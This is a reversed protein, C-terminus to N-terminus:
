ARDSNNGGPAGDGTGGSLLRHRYAATDPLHDRWADPDGSEEASCRAQYFDHWRDPTGEAAADARAQMEARQRADSRHSKGTAARLMRSQTKKM